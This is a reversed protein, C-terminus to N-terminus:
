LQARQSARAPIAKGTIKLAGKVREVLESEVSPQALKNRM